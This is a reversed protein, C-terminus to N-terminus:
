KNDVIAPFFLMLPRIFIFRRVTVNLKTNWIINTEYGDLTM